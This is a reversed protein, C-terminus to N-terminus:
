GATHVLGHLRKAAAYPDDAQWVNRGYVLGRVGSALAESINRALDEAATARPGGLVLVPVPCHEVIDRMSAADGTYQTKVADAGLEAALRNLYGLAAPDRQDEIRSGWLVCEVILPLGVAHADRAARAIAAANDTTVRDDQNGLVLFMVVADAGMAAAEAPTVLTRHLEGPGSTGAPQASGSFYLDTRLLVAPAGRHALAGRTRDLLGPSLLLGEVGADVTARVVDEVRHGGASVDSILGSDFAVIMTRSTGAAFLRGLRFEHTDM